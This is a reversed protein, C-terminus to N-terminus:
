GKRRECVIKHREGPALGLHTALMMGVKPCDFQGAPRVLMDTANERSCAPAEVGAPCALAVALFGPAPEAPECVVRPPNTLYMRCAGMETAISPSPAALLVALPVLTFALLMKAVSMDRFATLADHSPMRQVEGVYLLNALYSRRSRGPAYFEWALGDRDRWFYHLRGTRNRMARTRVHGRLLAVALCNAPFRM